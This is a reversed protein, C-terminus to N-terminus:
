VNDTKTKRLEYDVLGAQILFVVGAIVMCLAGTGTLIWLFGDDNSNKLFGSEIAGSLGAGILVAGSGGKLWWTRKLRQRDKM